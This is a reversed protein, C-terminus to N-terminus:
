GKNSRLDLGFIEEVRMYRAELAQAKGEYGNEELILAATDAYMVLSEIARREQDSLKAAKVLKTVQPRLDMTIEIKSHTVEPLTFSDTVVEHNTLRATLHVVQQPYSADKM